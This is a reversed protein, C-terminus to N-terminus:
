SLRYTYCDVPNLSKFFPSNDEFYDSFLPQCYWLYRRTVSRRYSTLGRQQVALSPLNPLLRLLKIVYHVAM